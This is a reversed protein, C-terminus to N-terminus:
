QTPRGARWGRGGAELAWEHAEESPMVLTRLRRAGGMEDWLHPAQPGAVPLTRGWAVGPMLSSLGPIRVRLGPSWLPPGELVGRGAGHSQPFPCHPQGTWSAEEGRYGGGGVDEELRLGQWEGRTPTSPQFRRQFAPGNPPGAPFHAQHPTTAM